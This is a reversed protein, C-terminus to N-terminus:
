TVISMSPPLPALRFIGQARNSVLSRAAIASRFRIGMDSIARTHTAYRRMKRHFDNMMQMSSSSIIMFASMACDDLTDIKM